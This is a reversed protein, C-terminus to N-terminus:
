KEKRNPVPSAQHETPVHLRYPILGKGVKSFFFGLIEGFYKNGNNERRGEL